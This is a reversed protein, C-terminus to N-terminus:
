SKALKFIHGDVMAYLSKNPPLLKSIAKKEEKNIFFIMNFKNSGGTLIPIRDNGDQYFYVYEHSEM